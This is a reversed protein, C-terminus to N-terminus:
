RGDTQSFGTARPWVSNPSNNVPKASETMAKLLTTCLAETKSKRTAELKELLQVVTIDPQMPSAAPENSPEKMQPLDCLSDIREQKTKVENIDIHNLQCLHTIYDGTFRRLYVARDAM